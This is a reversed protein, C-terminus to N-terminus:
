WNFQINNVAESREARLRFGLFSSRTVLARTVFDSRIKQVSSRYLNYSIRILAVGVRRAFTVM